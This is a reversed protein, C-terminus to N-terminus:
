QSTKSVTSLRLPPLFYDNPIHRQLAYSERAGEQIHHPSFRRWWVSGNSRREALHMPGLLM